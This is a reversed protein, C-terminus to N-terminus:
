IKSSRARSMLMVVDCECLVRSEDVLKDDYVRLLDGLEWGVSRMLHNEDLPHHIVLPNGVSPARM